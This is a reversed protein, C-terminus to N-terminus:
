RCGRPSRPPVSRGRRASGAASGRRCASSGRTRAVQDREHEKEADARRRGQDGGDDEGQRRRNSQGAQPRRPTGSSQRDLDRLRESRRATLRQTFTCSGSAFGEIMSPTLWVIMIASPMTTITATIPAAPQAPPAVVDQVLQVDAVGEVAPERDDCPSRARGRSTNTSGDCRPSRRPAVPTARDSTTPAVHLRPPADAHRDHRHSRGSTTRCCSKGSGRRRGDRVRRAPM